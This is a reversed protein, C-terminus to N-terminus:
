CNTCITPFIHLLPARGRGVAAGGDTLKFTESLELAGGMMAQNLLEDFNALIREYQEARDHAGQVTHTEIIDRLNRRVVEDECEGLLWGHGIAAPPIRVFEEVFAVMDSNQAHAVLSDPFFEYLPM